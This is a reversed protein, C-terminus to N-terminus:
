FFCTLTSVIDRGQTQLWVLLAAETQEVGLFYTTPVTERTYQVDLCINNLM